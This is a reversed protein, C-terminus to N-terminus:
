GPPQDGGDGRRRKVRLLSPEISVIHLGAHPGSRIRFILEALGFEDFAYVWKYRGLLHEFVARTGLDEPIGVLNPLGVVRVSAGVPIERGERDRPPLPGTDM